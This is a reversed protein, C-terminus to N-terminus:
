SGGSFNMAEDLSSENRVYLSSIKTGIQTLVLVAVISIMALILAYEVLTQGEQGKRRFGGRCQLSPKMKFM